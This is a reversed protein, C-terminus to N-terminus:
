VNPLYIQFDSGEGPESSVEIYGKQLEIIKRALYLGIGLGEQTHVDPERYFRRFIQAQHEAQIGKGTDKVSIETFIERKKIFVEIRGGQPTYKVANDLLNYVAEETWKRDHPVLINEEAKVYIEIGKNVASPVIASIAKGVTDRLSIAEKRIQIIGNELRSMKVMSRFLFELKDTQRELHELFEKLNQDTIEQRLIELYIRQNAIPTKIQHSIDSILEKMQQKKRVSEVDRRKWVHATMRLKENIKGFLTDQTEEMKEMEKGSLLADLNRELRDAFDFVDKKIRRIRWMMGACFFALCVTIGIIWDM